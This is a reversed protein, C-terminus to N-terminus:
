LAPEHYYVDAVGAGGWAEGCQRKAQSWYCVSHPVVDGVKYPWEPHNPSKWVERIVLDVNDGNRIKDCLVVVDRDAYDKRFGRWTSRDTSLCGSFLVPLILFTSFSSLINAKM